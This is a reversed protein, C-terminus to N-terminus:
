HPFSRYLFTVIQGRTCTDNPSFAAASTGNTIGREVAWLVAGRYYAGDPVDRFPNGGGAGPAGAARWLFTVVQARTCPANPSFAASGTGNTIGQEVAWLVASRFYADDPVDRFPDGGGRPAPCGAARWLFTVVQARTCPADPSFTFEGTGNTVGNHVAWRVPEAYYLNFPVDTFGTMTLSLLELEHMGDLAENPSLLGIVRLSGVFREVWGGYEELSLQDRETERLTDLDREVIRLTSLDPYYYVTEGANQPTHWLATQVKVADLFRGGRFVFLSDHSFDCVLGSYAPSDATGTGASETLVGIDGDATQVVAAQYDTHGNPHMYLRDDLLTEYGVGDDYVHARCVKLTPGKDKGPILLIIESQGDGDFDFFTGYVAEDTEYMTQRMLPEYPGFDEAALAGFPLVALLMLLALTLSLARKKM